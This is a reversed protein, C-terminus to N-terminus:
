PISAFGPNILINAITGTQTVAPGILQGVYQTPATVATFPVARGNTDATVLGWASVTDNFYVQAIGHTKVPIGDTTNIVDDKTVGIIPTNTIAIGEPYAVTNATSSLGSVIRYASLTTAVKFSEVEYSM